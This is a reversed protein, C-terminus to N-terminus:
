LSGLLSLEKKLAQFVANEIDNAQFIESSCKTQGILEQGERCWFIPSAQKYDYGMARRCNGCRVKGKLPFDVSGMVVKNRNNIVLQAKEFEERSVIAEHTGETIYQQGKPVTRSIPKGSILRQSKGLVMAGTYVYATLIKWVRTSDWLIVPAITYTTEKGYAKHERNYVSPVPANEDNLTMAIERTRLGLIALDFIRRVIKAAPPDIIYSGKKNPDFQYGFPASSATSIGKRWKVRNATRLKKGADRCYMTNVLNSLVDQFGFVIRIRKDASVEIRQVLSKVLQADFGFDDLHAELNSTMNLYERIQQEVEMKKAEVRQLATRLSDYQRSYEERIQQYEESDVAGAVYDAYLQERKKAMQGVKDTLSMVESKARYVPNQMDEIKRLEELIKRKDSLRVIFLHLQDMVLAKLLKETIQHGICKDDAQRARCIYYCVKKNEEAGHPLRDFDMPRGCDACFVMGALDNQYETRIQETEARVTKFVKQNKALIDQM